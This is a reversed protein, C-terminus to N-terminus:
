EPLEHKEKREDELEPIVAPAEHLLQTADGEGEGGVEGGVEAIGHSAIGELESKPESDLMHPGRGQTEPDISHAPLEGKSWDNDDQ